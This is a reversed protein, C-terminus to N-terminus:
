VEGSIAEEYAEYDHLPSKATVLPSDGDETDPGAVWEVVQRKGSHDALDPPVKGGMVQIRKRMRSKRREQKVARVRKAREVPSEQDKDPDAEFNVFAAFILTLWFAVM